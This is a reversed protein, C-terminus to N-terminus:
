VSFSRSASCSPGPTPFNEYLRVHYHHELLKRVNDLDKYAKPMKEELSPYKEAREKESIGRGKAWERSGLLSIQEPTRIGAVVDEGQANILYEGYFFKHEGTAPDRSFCVGTGCDDGM